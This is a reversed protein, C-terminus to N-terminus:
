AAGKVRKSANCARYYLDALELNLRVLDRDRLDAELKAKYAGVCEALRQSDRRAANPGGLRRELQAILAQAAGRHRERQAKSLKM